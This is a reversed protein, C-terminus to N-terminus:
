KVVKGKRYLLYILIFLLAITTISINAISVNKSFFWVLPCVSAILFLYAFLKENSIVNTSNSKKKISFWFLITSIFLFLIGELPLTISINFNSIYRIFFDLLFTFFLILILRKFKLIM